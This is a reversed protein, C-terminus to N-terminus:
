PVIIASTIREATELDPAHIILSEGAIQYLCIVDNQEWCTGSGTGQFGESGM